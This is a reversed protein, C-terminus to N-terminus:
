SKLILFSLNGWITLYPIVLYGLSEVWIYAWSFRFVYTWVSDQLCINMAANNM